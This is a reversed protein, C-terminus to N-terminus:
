VRMEHASIKPKTVSRPQKCIYAASPSRPNQLPNPGQKTRLKGAFATQKMTYSCVLFTRSLKVPVFQAINVVRAPLLCPLPM